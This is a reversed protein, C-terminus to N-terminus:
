RVTKWTCPKQCSTLGSPQRNFFLVPLDFHCPSVCRLWFGQSGLSHVSPLLPVLALDRWHGGVGKGSSPAQAFQTFILNNESFFIRCLPLPLLARPM